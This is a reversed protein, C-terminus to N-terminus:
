NKSNAQSNLQAFDTHPIGGLPGAIFNTPTASHTFTTLVFAAKPYLGPAAPILSAHRMKQRGPVFNQSNYSHRPVINRALLYCTM